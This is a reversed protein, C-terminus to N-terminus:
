VSYSQAGKRPKKEVKLIGKKQLEKIHKSMWDAISTFSIPSVRIEVQFERTIRDLEMEGPKGGTKSRPEIIDTYFKLVGEQANLTGFVGSAHIVKFDPHKTVDIKPPAKAM